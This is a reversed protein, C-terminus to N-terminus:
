PPTGVGAMERGHSLKKELAAYDPEYVAFRPDRGVYVQRLVPNPASAVADLLADFPKEEGFSVMPLRLLYRPKMAQLRKLFADEGGLPLGPANYYLPLPNSVFPRYAQRGTYLYAMTDLGTALIDSAASHDKVWTFLEQYRAWPPVDNDVKFLPYMREQTLRSSLWVSHLNLGLLVVVVGAGVLRGARQGAKGWPICGMAEVLLIALFPLVPILFRAIPWPWVILLSCYAVLAVPLVRWRCAQRLLHFFVTIGTLFAAMSSVIAPVHADLFQKLGFLPLIASLQFLSLINISTIRGLLGPGFDAWWGVYDTYYALGAADAQSSKAVLVWAVWGLVVVAAGLGYSVPSRGRQWVLVAGAAALMLGNTRCLFPLGAALGLLFLHLPKAPAGPRLARELIWLFVVVLVAFVPESMTLGGFYLFPPSTAALLCGCVASARAAYGFRVTFLYALGVALACCVLSISKLVVLNDPFQPLFHWAVALIAPYLIPYKTQPPMGPLDILRYGQGEALAKATALYIGDDHYAGAAAPVIYGHGVVLVLCVLLGALLLDLRQIASRSEFYEGM